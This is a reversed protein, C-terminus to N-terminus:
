HYLPCIWECANTLRAPIEFAGFYAVCAIWGFLVWAGMEDPTLLRDRGYARCAFVVVWLGTAVPVAVGAGNWLVWVTGVALVCACMLEALLIM